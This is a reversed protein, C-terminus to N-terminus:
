PHTSPIKNLIKAGYQGAKLHSMELWQTVKNVTDAFSQPVEYSM